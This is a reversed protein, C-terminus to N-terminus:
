FKQEMKLIEVLEIEILKTPAEEIRGIEKNGKLLVVTPIYKINYKKLFSDPFNKESNVGIYNITAKEPTSLKLTKILGPLYKKSERCWSGFFIQITLSDDFTKLYQLAAEDPNYRETHIRFLHDSELLEQETKLGILINSQAFSASNQIFMGGAFLFILIPKPIRNM